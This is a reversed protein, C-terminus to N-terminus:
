EDRKDSPLKDDTLATTSDRKEKLASIAAFFVMVLISIGLLFGPLALLVKLDETPEFVEEWATFLTMALWGIGALISTVALRRDEMWYRRCLLLAIALGGAATLM